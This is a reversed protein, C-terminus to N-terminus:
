STACGSAPPACHRGSRSTASPLCTLDGALPTRCVEAPFDSGDRRVGVHATAPSEHAALAGTCCTASSALGLLEDASPAGFLRQARLNTLAVVGDPDIVVLADNSADVIGRLVAADHEPPTPPM